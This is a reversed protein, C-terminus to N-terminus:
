HLLSRVREHFLLQFSKLVETEEQEIEVLNFIDWNEAVMKLTDDIANKCEIIEQYTWTKLVEEPHINGLWYNLKTTTM